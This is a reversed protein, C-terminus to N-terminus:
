LRSTVVFLYDCEAENSSLKWETTISRSSTSEALLAATAIKSADSNRYDKVSPVAFACATCMDAVDGAAAVEHQPIFQNIPM